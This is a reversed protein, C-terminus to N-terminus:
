CIIQPMNFYLIHVNSVDCVVTYTMVYSCSLVHVGNAWGVGGCTSLVARGDVRRPVVEVCCACTQQYTEAMCTMDLMLAGRFFFVFRLYPKLDTPMFLERVLSSRSAHLSRAFFLIYRNACPGVLDVEGVCDLAVVTPM